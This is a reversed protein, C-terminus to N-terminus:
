LRLNKLIQETITGTYPKMQLARVDRASPVAADTMGRYRALEPLLEFAGVQEKLVGLGAGPLGAAYTPHGSREIIQPAPNVVGINQLGAVPADLQNPDSVVLRAETLSLSGKDRYGRDLIQQIVKRQDGSLESLQAVSDPSDLGNFEPSTITVKKAKGTVADKKWVTRGVSRIIRNAEKIDSSSMNARAYNLMAETTMTSYDGGSPTMRWPLFLPSQGTDKSIKQAAAQMQRVVRPDSAWVQGENMTDFMYDQGGRLNVPSDFQTNNIGTLSGGAATRDSMTTIFPRGELDVISVGPADINRSEYSPTLASVRESEAPTVMGQPKNIRESFRIDAGSFRHPSGHWADINRKIQPLVAAIAPSVSLAGGAAGAGTLSANFWTRSEPDTFYMEADAVLGTLDGLGNFGMTLFAAKQATTLGETIMDVFGKVEQFKNDLVVKLYAPSALTNEAMFRLHPEVSKAAGVAIDKASEARGAWKERSANQRDVSAQIGAVSAPQNLRISGLGRVRVLVSNDAV